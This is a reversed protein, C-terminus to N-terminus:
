VVPTNLGIQGWEAWSGDYLFAKDHGIEHLALSIIAATVGSGCTTVVKTEDEVGLNAFIAELKDRPKLAGDEILEMAPLSVSGPMHGSRLSARPEPMTGEFRARPRADLILQGPAELSDALAQRSIKKEPEFHPTYVVPPSTEQESTVPLGVAKWAPLGGRLIHVQDHGMLKLTWWVRAASFLGQRDYIVVSDNASIGMRGVAEAFQEPSPAMHPLPTSHDSVAELDFFQAGPIHDQLYLAQMDTGDLAWSGDLVKVRSQSILTNLAEPTIQATM